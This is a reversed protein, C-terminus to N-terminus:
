ANDVESSSIPDLHPYKLDPTEWYFKNDESHPLSFYFPEGCCNCGEADADFSTSDNFSAKVAAIAEKESRAVLEKYFGRQEPFIVFGNDRLSKYDKAKLWFRGGSNNESCGVKYNKLSENSHEMDDRESELEQIERLKENIKDNYYDRFTM